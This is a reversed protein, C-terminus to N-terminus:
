GNGRRKFGARFGKRRTVMSQRGKASIGLSRDLAIGATANLKTARSENEEVYEAVLAGTRNILFSASNIVNIPDDSDTITGFLERIYELKLDIDVNAPLFKMIQSEWVYGLFQSTEIGAQNLPLGDLKGCPVYPDIGSTRQWVKQIEVLDNPLVVAGVTPPDTDFALETTGAVLTKVASQQDTVPVSNQEFYEQLEKLAVNLYPIQIIYTYHTKSVDNLLAASADMVESAYLIASAM